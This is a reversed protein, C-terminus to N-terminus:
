VLARLLKVITYTYALYGKIYLSVYWNILQIAHLMDSAVNFVSLLIASIPRTVWFLKFNLHGLDISPLNKLIGRLIICSCSRKNQPGM